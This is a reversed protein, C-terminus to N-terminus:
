LASNSDSKLQLGTLLTQLDTVFQHTHQAEAYGFVFGVILCVISLASAAILFPGVVLPLLWLIVSQHVPNYVHIPVVVMTIYFLLVLLLLLLFTVLLRRSMRQMTHHDTQLILTIEQVTAMTLNTQCPHLPSLKPSTAACIRFTSCVGFHDSHSLSTGPIPDVLDVYSDICELQATKKYFVYDLRSGKPQLAGYHKSWSNISSNCTIGHRQIFQLQDDNIDQQQDSAIGNTLSAHVEAWSDTMFGHDRLVQYNYSTPISNFDGTVIVQRGQSMADRIMSTLEWTESIRHGRYEDAVGYGAHLHTTFLQLLGLAPHDICASACGKGVYFDGHFIKLPRGALTYRWYSTSVFPHKSLLVLGSGLTGSYFYKAFPLTNVTKERICEYDDQVWVEQLAVLDYDGKSLYDAIAKLRKERQKSVLLLGWCNLSLVRLLSSDVM